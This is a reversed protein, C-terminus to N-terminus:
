VDYTKELKELQALGQDTIQGGIPSFLTPPLEVLGNDVLEKALRSHVRIGRLYYRRSQRELIEGQSLKRLVEVTSDSIM